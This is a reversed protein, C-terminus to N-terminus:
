AVAVPEVAGERFPALVQAGGNVFNFIELKDGFTLEDVGLHEDDGTTQIPPEIVAALAVVDMLEAYQPLQALEVTLRGNSRDAMDQLLGLLPAPLQGSSALDLLGVRRLRVTLGTPLEREVERALRWSRLDAM